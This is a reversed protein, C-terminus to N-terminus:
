KQFCALYFSETIPIDNSEDLYYYEEDRMATKNNNYIRLYYYESDEGFDNELDKIIESSNKFLLFSKKINFDKKFENIIKIFKLEFENDIKKGDKYILGNKILISYLYTFSYPILLSEKFNPKEYNLRSLFEIIFQKSVNSKNFTDFILNYYYTNPDSSLSVAIAMENSINVDYLLKVPISPMKVIYEASLYEQMSKHVFEYTDYSSKIVIGTHEEIEKVVKFCERKPLNFSDYIKNYAFIFDDESYVKRTFTVTLLYAFHSLFDFKTENDFNSYKSDRVIRRQEDWEEILLRLLKKYISKPKDYFKQTREFIACLHALTIPKLSLDLFKSSKLEQLFLDGKEEEKFFWKGVFEEIQNNSLNCLEYETTNPLNINFSATRCTVIILSNTINSVLSKIEKYFSELRNPNIEDLGDLIIISKFSNLYSNVYKIRLDEDDLFSFSDEKKVLIELGLITKIKSYINESVSLDRLNILLPFSFTMEDEFALIKQCIRRITTTKGAGPGGLIVLHGDTDKIIRTINKKISKDNRSKYRKPQLEIDLDIYQQSLYKNGKLHKFSIFKTSNKIFENHQFISNVLDEKSFKLSIKKPILIKKIETIGESVLKKLILENIM